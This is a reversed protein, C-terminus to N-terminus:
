HCHPAGLNGSARAGSELRCSFDLSVTLDYVENIEWGTRQLSLQFTECDARRFIVGPKMPEANSFFRLSADGLPDVVLRAVRQEDDLFDAGLFVQQEGSVCSVPTFETSRGDPDTFRVIGVPQDRSADIASSVICGSQVLVVILVLSLVAASRFQPSVYQM